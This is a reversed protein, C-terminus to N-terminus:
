LLDCHDPVVCLRRRIRSTQWLVHTARAPDMKSSTSVPPNFHTHASAAYQIINYSHKIHNEDDFDRSSTHCCECM